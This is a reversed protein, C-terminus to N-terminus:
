RGKYAAQIIYAISMRHSWGFAFRYFTYSCRWDAL